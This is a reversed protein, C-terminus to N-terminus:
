GFKAASFLPRWRYEAPRGDRQTSAWMCKQNKKREKNKKKGRKIEATASTPHKNVRYLRNDFRNYLRNSLRNYRTFPIHCIRQEQETDM